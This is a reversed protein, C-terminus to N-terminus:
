LPNPLVTCPGFCDKAPLLVTKGGGGPLCSCPKREDRPCVAYWWLVQAKPLTSHDRLRRQQTSDREPECCLPPANICTCAIGQALPTSVAPISLCRAAWIPNHWATKLPWSWRLYAEPDACPPVHSRFQHRKPLIPQARAKWLAHFKDARSRVTSASGLGIADKLPRSRSMFAIWPRAVTRSVRNKVVCLAWILWSLRLQAPNCSSSFSAIESRHLVTTSKPTM